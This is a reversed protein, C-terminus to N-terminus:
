YKERFIRKRKKSEDFSSNKNNSSHYNKRNYRGDDSEKNSKFTGSKKGSSQEISIARNNFSKGNLVMLKDVDNQSIEFFSFTRKVDTNKISTNPIGTEDAIFDKLSRWNFGDMEGLNIFYRNSQRHSSIDLDKMNNIDPANQYYTYFRNFEEWILKKILEEKSLENLSEYVSPLFEQISNEDVSTTKIRNVLHLLQKECVQIGTPILSRHFKAKTFKELDKIKRSESPTVIAISIGSKGARATRGSRHTYVELDDPLDYNIVHTVSDVDIGRAAVDTAVLLQLQRNRFRKMVFDRQSQSLDGHLADASYGDKILQDAVKQTDIKTRCFIIGFIDPYYDIIRKLALYRHKNNNIIFYMHEINSAAANKNGVSIEIPHTMYNKAIRSVEPPMTASFLWTQKSDFTQEIIYDIDEKFGMNLMEDAEDLVLIKIESLDVVNRDILDVLRGPTAAIIQCGKKITNIQTEINAGGYVAVTNIKPQYKSLKIIDNSIQVCLERTPAIILAQPFKKDSDIKTLLPIAFAATKGTGTQALAIIDTNKELLLPITQQQIPTPCTYGLENIANQIWEPLKYDNFTVNSESLTSTNM